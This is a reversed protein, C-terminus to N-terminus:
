LNQIWQLDKSVEESSEPKYSKKKKKPTAEQNALTSESHTRKQKKTKVQVVHESNEDETDCLIINNEKTNLNPKFKPKELSTSGNSKIHKRKSVAEQLLKTSLEDAKKLRESIAKDIKLSKDFQHGHLPHRVKIMDPFPVKGPPPCLTEANELTVAEATKLRGRMLINGKVPLLRLSYRGKRNCYGFARTEPETFEVAVAEVSNFSSRGPIKLKQGRIESAMDFGKPCQLIWVEDEVEDIDQFGGITNIDFSSKIEKYDPNDELFREKVSITDM